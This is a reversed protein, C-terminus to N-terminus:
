TKKQQRRRAAAGVLGLGALMLAWTQPEPIAAVPTDASAPTAAGRLRFNWAPNEQFNGTGNFFTLQGSILIDGTPNNTGGYFTETFPGTPTISPLSSGNIVLNTLSSVSGNGSISVYDFAYGTYDTLGLGGGGALFASRSVTEGIGFASDRNFDVSLSLSGASSDWFVEFNHPNGIHSTWVPAGSPNLTPTDTGNDRIGAEYGSGGWRIKAGIETAVGPDSVVNVAAAPAAVCLGAVFAAPLKWNSM